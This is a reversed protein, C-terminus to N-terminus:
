GNMGLARWDLKHLRAMESIFADASTERLAEPEAAAMAGAATRGNMRHMIFFPRDMVSPPLELFLPEPTKMGARYMTDVVKFERERESKLLGGTPDRRGIM